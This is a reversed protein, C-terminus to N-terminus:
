GPELLHQQLVFYFILTWLLIVSPRRLELFETKVKLMLRSQVNKKQSFSSSDRARKRGLNITQRTQANVKVPNKYEKEIRRKERGGRAKRM